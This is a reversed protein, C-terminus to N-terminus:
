IYGKEMVVKANVIVPIHQENMPDSETRTNSESSDKGKHQFKEVVAAQEDIQNNVTQFKVEMAKEITM